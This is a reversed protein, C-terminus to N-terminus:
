KAIRPKAVSHSLLVIESGEKSLPLMNFKSEKNKVIMKECAKTHSRLMLDQIYSPVQSIIKVKQADRISTMVETSEASPVFAPM